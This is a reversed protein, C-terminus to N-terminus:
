YGTYQHLQGWQATAADHFLRGQPNDKAVARVANETRYPKGTVSQAGGYFDILQQERGRIRLYAVDRYRHDYNIAAGVDLKDYRAQRFAPDKPDDNEDIHHNVDRALVAAQAQPPLPKELDVVMSTRGVYYRNTKTNLKTYTVYIRGLRKKEKEKDAQTSAEPNIEREAGLSASPEHAQRRLEELTRESEKMLREHEAEWAREEDSKFGLASGAAAAASRWFPRNGPAASPTTPATSSAAGEAPPVTPTTAGSTPPSTATTSAAGDSQSMAQLCQPTAQSGECTNFGGSRLAAAVVAEMVPNAPSPSDASDSQLAQGSRTPRERIRDDRRSAVSASSPAGFGFLIGVGAAGVWEGELARSPPFSYVIAVGVELGIGGRIATLGVEAGARIRPPWLAGPPAVAIGGVPKFYLPGENAFRAVADLSLEWPGAFNPSPLLTLRAGFGQGSDGLRLMSMSYAQSLEWAGLVISRSTSAEVIAHAEGEDGAALARPVVFLALLMMPVAAKTPGM